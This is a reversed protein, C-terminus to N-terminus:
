TVGETDRRYELVGTAVRQGSASAKVRLEVADEHATRLEAFLELRQGPPSFARVKYDSVRAVRIPDAADGLTRAALPAGVQTLADALLSAPYVPRRPFHEVFFPATEPVDLQSSASTAELAIPALVPQTSACVSLGGAHATAGRLAAFRDRVASPDDFLDMALLPGVCRSLSALEVGACHASGAYLIARSDFREIHAELDISGHAAAGSLRIDGALAAVPRRTFDTHAMAIWAALQGVAEIVLWPPVPAEGNPCLLEGRARDSDVAILRDVFSFSFGM